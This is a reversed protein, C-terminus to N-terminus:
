KVLLSPWNAIVVIPLVAEPGAPAPNLLFRQGDPSALYDSQATSAGGIQTPFLPSPIGVEVAQGDRLSVKSVMRPRTSAWSIPWWNSGELPCESLPMMRDDNFKLDWSGGANM